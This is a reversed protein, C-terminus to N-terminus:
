GFTITSENKKRLTGRRKVVLIGGFVINELHPHYWKLLGNELAANSLGQSERPRLKDSKLFFHRLYLGFVSDPVDCPTEFKHFGDMRPFRKGECNCLDLKKWFKVFFSIEVSIWPKTCLPRSQAPKPRIRHQTQTVMRLKIKSYLDRNKKRSYGTGTATTIM